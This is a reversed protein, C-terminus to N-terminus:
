VCIISEYPDRHGKVFLDTSLSVIELIYLKKRKEFPRSNAKVMATSALFLAPVMPIATILM